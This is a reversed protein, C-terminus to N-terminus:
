FPRLASNSLPYAHGYAPDLAPGATGHHYEAVARLLDTTAQFLALAQTKLYLAQDDPLSGETVHARLESDLEDIADRWTDLMDFHARVFKDAEAKPTTWRESYAAIRACERITGGTLHDFCDPIGGLTKEYAAVAPPQVDLM